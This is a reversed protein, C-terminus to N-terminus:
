KTFLWVKLIARLVDVNQSSVAAHLVTDKTGTNVLVHDQHELLKEVIELRGHTCAILLATVDDSTRGNLIIEKDPRKRPRGSLVEEATKSDGEICAAILMEHSINLEENEKQIADILAAAVNEHGAMQAIELPCHGDVDLRMADAGSELLERAAALEGAEAAMHLATKGRLNSLELSDPCCMLLARLSNTRGNHAALMLLTRGHRDVKDWAWPNEKLLDAVLEVNEFLVAQRLLQMSDSNDFDKAIRPPPEEGGSSAAM